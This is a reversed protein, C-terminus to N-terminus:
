WLQSRSKEMHEIKMKLKDETYVLDLGAMLREKGWLDLYALSHDDGDTDVMIACQVHHLPFQSLEGIRERLTTWLTRQDIGPNREPGLTKIWIDSRLPSHRLPVGVDIRDDDGDENDEKWWDWVM